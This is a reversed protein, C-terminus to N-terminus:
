YDGCGVPSCHRSMGQSPVAFERPLLSSPTNRTPDIKPLLYFAICHKLLVTPSTSSELLDILPQGLYPTDFLSLNSAVPDSTQTALRDTYYNEVFLEIDDLTRNALSIVTQDSESQPFDKQWNAKTGAVLRFSQEDTGLSRVAQKSAHVSKKSRRRRRKLCLFVVMVAVLLAALACGVVAGALAGTPLSSGHSTRSSVEPDSTIARTSSTSQNQITTTSETQSSAASINTSVMPLSLNVFTMQVAAVDISTTIIPVNIPSTETTSAAMTPAPVIITPTITFDPPHALFILNSDLITQITMREDAPNTYGTANFTMISSMLQNVSGSYIASISIINTPAPLSWGVLDNSSIVAQYVQSM